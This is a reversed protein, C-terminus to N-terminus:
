EGAKEIQEPHTAEILPGNYKKLWGRVRIRQNELLLPDVGANRFLRLAKANLQITFDTKWNKGFNLYVRSKVKAAALVRGEVIQFTGIHRGAQRPTRPAYFPHKWIGLGQARAEHERSLMQPIRARNDAFSYVRAMGQRLMEGQVWTEDQTFLHALLRGHRDMERGGFRLQVTRGFVMEELAKRSADALPWTLFNKRGLPLKPAQIGVLRVQTAGDLPRDLIVTDGDVIESVLASGGPRLDAAQVTSVFLVVLLPALCLFRM